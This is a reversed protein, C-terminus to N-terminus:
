RKSKLNSTAYYVKRFSSIDQATIEIDSEQYLGAIADDSFGADYLSAVKSLGELTHASNETQNPREDIRKLRQSVAPASIGISEAIKAQPVGQARLLKIVHNKEDKTLESFDKSADVNESKAKNVVKEVVSSVSCSIVPPIM